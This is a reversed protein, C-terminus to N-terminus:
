LVLSCLKQEEQLENGEGLGGWHVGKCNTGKIRNGRAIKAPKLESIRINRGVVRAYIQEISSIPMEGKVYAAGFPM